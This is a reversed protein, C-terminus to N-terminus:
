IRFVKQIEEHLLTCTGTPRMESLRNGFKLLVSLPERLMRAVSKIEARCLEPM